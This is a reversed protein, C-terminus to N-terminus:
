HSLARWAHIGRGYRSFDTLVTAGTTTLGSMSEFLADIPKLGVFVYPLAGALGLAVYTFAVVALADPRRLDPPPEGVTRLLLGVGTSAAASVVFAVVELRNADLVAVGAPVLLALGFWRLIAGILYAVRALVM